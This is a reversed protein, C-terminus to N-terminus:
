QIIFHSNENVEINETKKEHFKGSDFTFPSSDMSDDPEDKNEDIAASNSNGAMGDDRENTINDVSLDAPEDNTENNQATNDIM